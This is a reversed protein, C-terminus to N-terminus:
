AGRSLRTTDRIKRFDRRTLKLVLTPSLRVLRWLVHVLGTVPIILKNKRVGKLIVRACEEPSMSFKEYPALSKLFEERDLNITPSTEFIPTRIFGPCVVSVNVGLDTGEIWMGQSLGMVAFKSAVYSVTGPFATLGEMSSLNVIHGFGQNVMLKYAEVSGYIVGNLNVDLVKLWHEIELDRIEGAIAIGANNFLYDLRGERASTDHILQRFAAHDTVDLQAPRVPHKASKMHTVAAQLAEENIDSAVVRAGRTALEECLARGIGSGAGTVIAVKDEFINM